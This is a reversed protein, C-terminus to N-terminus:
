GKSALNPGVSIDVEVPVKKLLKSGAEIMVREMLTKVDEVQDEACEVVIEDHVTSIIHAEKDALQKVLEALALKLIDAATGQVPSNLRQTFRKDAVYILRGGLTKAYEAHRRRKAEEQWSDLGKYTKFFTEKYEDAQKLDMEVGFQNRSQTALRESGMGYLLGFNLAKGVNREDDTIERNPKGLIHSATQTHLDDGRRYAEVMLQDRSIEAAVRLEIQSLDVIVLLCGDKALFLSRIEDNRALNQINPKSCSYRGTYARNQNFSPHLRSTEPDMFKTLKKVKNFTSSNGRYDLLHALNPYSPLLPTLTEKKTNELHLGKKAMAKIIKSPSNPNVDGWYEKLKAKLSKVLLKLKKEYQYRKDEDIMFGASEMAVTTQLCEMELDFIFQLRKEAMKPQMEAQLDLLIASDQAAYELQEVSLKEQEWDSSQFEKDLIPGGLYIQVAGALGHRVKELVQLEGKTSKIVFKRKLDSAKLKWEYYYASSTYRIRKKDMKLTTNESLYIGNEKFQAKMEPSLISEKLSKKDKRELNFLHKYKRGANLMQSAIMTCFISSKVEVGLKQLFKVEFKANHAVFTKEASFLASFQQIVKNGLYNFDFIKNKESSSIQLLRVKHKYHKLGTTELDVGLIQHGELEQLAQEVASDQTIYDYSIGVKTSDREASPLHPIHATPATKIPNQPTNNLLDSLKPKAM